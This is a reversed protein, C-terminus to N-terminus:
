VCVLYNVISLGSGGIGLSDDVKGRRSLSRTMMKRRGISVRFGVELLM